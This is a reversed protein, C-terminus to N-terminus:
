NKAPIKKNSRSSIGEALFIAMFLIFLYGTGSYFFLSDTLNALMFAGLIGLAIPRFNQLTLFERILSIIFYGFIMLGILGLESAILWYQSHPELLRRNWSPVPKFKAFSNTFSAVGNGIIPHMVFLDKAFKHFQLRYSLSNDEKDKKYNQWDIVIQNVRTNVTPNEFYVGSAVVLLALSAICARKFSLQHMLFVVLLFGYVVYGTRGTNVFVVQFSFLITLFIYTKKYKGKFALILSIYAALAIMFGTMIHNHFVHGPDIGHYHSVNLYKLISLLTTILMAVLFANIAIDRTRSYKFGIVLIPLYLFKSYKEMVLFKESVRAPSWIISLLTFLFLLVAAICWQEQVLTKVTEKNICFLTILITAPIIFITKASPSIPISFLTCILLASIIFESNLYTIDLFYKKKIESNTQM